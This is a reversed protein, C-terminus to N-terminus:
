FLSWHHLGGAIHTQCSQRGSVPHPYIFHNLILEILLTSTLTGNTSWPTSWVIGEPSQSLSGERLTSPAFQRSLVTGGVVANTFWVVVAVLEDLLRYAVCNTKHRDV